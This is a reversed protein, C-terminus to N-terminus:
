LYLVNLAASFSWICFFFWIQFCVNQKAQDCWMINNVCCLEKDILWRCHVTVVGHSCYRHLWRQLSAAPLVTVILQTTVTSGATLLSSYVTVQRTVMYDCHRMPLQQLSAAPLVTVILQTIVTSSATLFRSYVTVQSTVTYDCHQKPSQQILLKATHMWWSFINSDELM